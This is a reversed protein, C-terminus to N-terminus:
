MEYVRQDPQAENQQVSTAAVVTGTTATSVTIVKTRSPTVSDATTVTSATNVALAAICILGLVAAAIATRISTTM